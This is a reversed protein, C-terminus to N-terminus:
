ACCRAYWGEPWFPSLPSGFLSLRRDAAGIRRAEDIRGLLRRVFRGAIAPEYGGARFADLWQDRTLGGVLDSAWHVDDPTIRNRILEQHWGHYDFELFGNRIGTIFPRREFIDIDGRKPFLRGTEGLATGLDRVVYWREVGDSPRKLEYLTNNVNKLDSSNFMVLIVLLLWAEHSTQLRRVLDPM